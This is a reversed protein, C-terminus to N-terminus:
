SDSLPKTVSFLIFRLRRDRRWNVLGMRSCIERLEDESWMRYPGGPRDLPEFIGLQLCWM